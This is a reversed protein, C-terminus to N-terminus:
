VRRRSQKKPSSTTKKESSKKMADIKNLIPTSVTLAKKLNQKLEILIQASEEPGHKDLFVKGAIKKNKPDASTKKIDKMLREHEASMPELAEKLTNTLSTGWEQFEIGEKTKSKVLALFDECAMGQAVRQDILESADRLEKEVAQLPSMAKMAKPTKTAKMAKMGKMPSRAPMAEDMSNEGQEEAKTKKSTQGRPPEESEDDGSDSEEKVRKKAERTKNFKDNLKNPRGGLFSTPTGAKAWGEVGLDTAKIMEISVQVLKKKKAEAFNMMAKRELSTQEFLNKESFTKVLNASREGTMETEEEWEFLYLYTDLWSSWKTWSQKEDKSYWCEDCWKWSADLCEPSNADGLKAAIGVPLMWARKFGARQDTYTETTKSEELFEYNRGFGWGMRFKMQLQPHLYTFVEKKAANEPKALDIRLSQQLAGGSSLDVGQYAWGHVGDTSETLMRLTVDKAAMGHVKAYNVFALNQFKSRSPKAVLKLEDQMEQWVKTEEKAQEDKEKEEAEQQEEREDEQQKQAEEASQQAQQEEEAAENAGQQEECEEEQQEEEQQAEEEQQKKEPSHQGGPTKSSSRRRVNRTLDPGPQAYLQTDIDDFRSMILAEEFYEQFHEWDVFAM